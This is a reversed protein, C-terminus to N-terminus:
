GFFSDGTKSITVSGVARIIEISYDPDTVPLIFIDTNNRELDDKGPNDLNFDKGGLLLHVPDDTGAFRKDGTKIEVILANVTQGFGFSINLVSMGVICISRLYPFNRM